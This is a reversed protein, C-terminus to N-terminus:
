PLVAAGSEQMEAVRQYVGTWDRCTRVIGRPPISHNSYIDVVRLLQKNSRCLVMQRLYNICHQTAGSPITRAGAMGALYDKRIIDLCKLQHFISLM